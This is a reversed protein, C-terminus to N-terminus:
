IISELHALDGEFVEVAYGVDSWIRGMFVALNSTKPCRTEVWVHKLFHMNPSTIGLSHGM